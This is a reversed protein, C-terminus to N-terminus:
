KRKFNIKRKHIIIKQWNNIIRQTKKIGSNLNNSLTNISNKRDEDTKIVESLKWSEKELVFYMMCNAKFTTYVKDDSDGFIKQRVEVRAEDDDIVISLICIKNKSTRSNYFILDKPVNDDSIIYAEPLDIKKTQSNEYLSKLSAYNSDIKKLKEYLDAHIHNKFYPNNIYSTPQWSEPKPESAKTIIEKVLFALDKQLPEGYLLDGGFFFIFM